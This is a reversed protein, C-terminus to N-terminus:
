LREFSKFRVLAWAGFVYRMVQRFDRITPLTKLAFKPRFYFSKYAKEVWADLGAFNYPLREETKGLVFKRWYDEDGILGNEVALRWLDTGPYPVTNLFMAWDPDLELAFDITRKINESTETPYGIMFFCFTEIGAEKTMKVARRAQELTTNKKMLNLIGQNGNEIGYRLRRCGAKKMMGLLKRDVCDIRTLTEWSADLGRGVIEKCIAVAHKRNATFNDDYFWIDKFGMELIMEIEDVVNEASRFRLNYDLNKKFCFGCKYPCGRSTIMTAFPYKALISFYKENPLLHRAPFPLSDLNEVCRRAPNYLIKKGDRYVLGDIKKFHKRGEVADILDPLVIEGEGAVGFDVCKHQLTEKPYLFLQAGGLMTITDPSIEKAMEAVELAGRITSTMCTAGVIDPNFNEMMRRSEERTLNLAQSDMIKVEHGLQELVAAIYAIGLPPYIGHIKNISEPPRTNIKDVDRHRVLLVRM